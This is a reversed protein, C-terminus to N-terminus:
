SFKIAIVCSKKIWEIIEIEKNNKNYLNKEKNQLKEVFEEMKGEHFSYNKKNGSSWNLHYGFYWLILILFVLSFRKNGNELKHGMLYKIFINGVFDFISNPNQHICKNIESGIVSELSSLIENDWPIPEESINRAENLSELILNKLSEFLDENFNVEQYSVSIEEKNKQYHSLFYTKKNELVFLSNKNKNWFINYPSDICDKITWFIIQKM